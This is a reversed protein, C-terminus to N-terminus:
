TRGGDGYPRAPGDAPLLPLLRLLSALIEPRVAAGRAIGDVEEPRLPPMAGSASDLIASRVADLELPGLSLVDDALPHLAALDAGAGAVVALVPRPGRLRDSDGSGRWQGTFWAHFGPSPSYGDLLLLCPGESASELRADVAEPTTGDDVELPPEPSGAVVWGELRRAFEGLLTSRGSYAPGEVLVLASARRDAVALLRRLEAERGVVLPTGEPNMIAATEGTM